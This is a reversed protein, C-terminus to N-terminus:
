NHKDNNKTHKNQTEQKQKSSPKPNEPNHRPQETKNKSKRTTDQHENHKRTQKTTKPNKRNNELNKRTKDQQQETNTKNERARPGPFFGRPHGGFLQHDSDEQRDVEVDPQGYVMRLTAGSIMGKPWERNGDFPEWEIPGDARALVLKFESGPSLVPVSASWTPYAGPRTTLSIAWAPDWAGFEPTEGVVRVSDGFGTECVAQLQVTTESWAAM